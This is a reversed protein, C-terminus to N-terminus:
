SGGIQAKLGDQIVGLVAAGGAARGNVKVLDIGKERKEGETLIVVGMRTLDGLDAERVGGELGLRSMAGDVGKGCAATDKFVDPAVIPFSIQKFLIIGRIPM